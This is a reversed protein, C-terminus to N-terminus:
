PRDGNVAYRDFREAVVAPLRAQITERTCEVAAGEHISERPQEPFPFPARQGHQVDVVELGDVVRQTVEM